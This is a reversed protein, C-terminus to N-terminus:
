VDQRSNTSVPMRDTQDAEVAARAEVKESVPDQAISDEGAVLPADGKEAVGNGEVVKEGSADGASPIVDDIAALRSPPENSKKEMGVTISSRRRVSITPENSGAGGVGALTDTTGEVSRRRLLGNSAPGRWMIKGSVFLDTMIDAYMKTKIFKPVSDNAMLHFIHHEAADFMSATFGQLTKPFKSLSTEEGEGRDILVKAPDVKEEMAISDPNIHQMFQTTHAIAAEISKKIGIVLNLEFPADNVVYKLYLAMAHPILSVSPENDGQDASIAQGPIVISNSYATRFAHVDEWFYLNEECFMSRVFVHFSARLEENTLIQVLRTPNSEKIQDVSFSTKEDSMNTPRVSESCRRNNVTSSPGSVSNSRMAGITSARKSRAAAALSAATVTTDKATISMARSNGARSESGDMSIPNLHCVEWDFGADGNESTPSTKSASKSINEQSGKYNSGTYFSNRNSPSKSPSSVPSEDGNQASTPSLNNAADRGDDEQSNGEGDHRMALKKKIVDFEVSWRALKCGSQTPQYVGSKADKFLPKGSESMPSQSSPSESHPTGAVHIWGNSVFTSAIQVAEDRSLVSTNQLIWDVAEAGTFTFAQSKLRIIRTHLQISKIPAIGLDVCLNAVSGTRSQPINSLQNGGDFGGSTDPDSSKRSSVNPRDGLMGKFILETVLNGPKFSGNQHRGVYIINSRVISSVHKSSGPPLSAMEASYAAEPAESPIRGSNIDKLMQDGKQSIGYVHRPKLEFAEKPKDLDQIIQSQLFRTLYDVAEERSCSAVEAMVAQATETTFSRSYTKFHYKNDDLQVSKYFAKFLFFPSAHSPANGQAIESSDDM